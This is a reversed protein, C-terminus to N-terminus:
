VGGLLEVAERMAELEDVKKWADSLEDGADDLADSIWERAGPMERVKEVADWLRRAAPSPVGGSYGVERAAERSGMGDLRKRVYEEAMTDSM